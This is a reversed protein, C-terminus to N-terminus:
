ELSFCQSIERERGCRCAGDVVLELLLSRVMFLLEWVPLVRSLGSVQMIRHLALEMRALFIPGSRRSVRDQVFSQLPASDSLHHTFSSMM